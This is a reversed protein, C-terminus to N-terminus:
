CLYCLGQICTYIYIYIYIYIYKYIYIYMYVEILAQRRKTLIFVSGNMGRGGLGRSDFEWHGRIIVMGGM